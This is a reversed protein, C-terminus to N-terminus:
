WIKNDSLSSNGTKSYNKLLLVKDKFLKRDELMSNISRTDSPFKKTTMEYYKPFSLMDKYDQISQIYLTCWKDFEEQSDCYLEVFIFIKNLNIKWREPYKSMDVNVKFYKRDNQYNKKYYSFTHLIDKYEDRHQAVWSGANFNKSDNFDETIRGFFRFAPYRDLVAKKAIYDIYKYPDPYNNIDNYFLSLSFQSSDITEGVAGFSRSHKVIDPKFDGIDLLYQEVLRWQESTMDVVEDIALWTLITTLFELKPITPSVITSSGGILYNMVITSSSKGFSPPTSVRYNIREIMSAVSLLTMLKQHKDNTHKFYSLNDILQKFTLKKEPRIKISDYKRILYYVQGRYAVKETRRPIIPLDNSLNLNHSSLLYKIGDRKFTYGWFNAEENVGGDQYSLKKIEIEEGQLHELGLAGQYYQKKFATIFNYYLLTM